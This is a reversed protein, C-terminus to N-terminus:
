IENSHYKAVTSIYITRHNRLWLFKLIALHDSIHSILKQGKVPFIADNQSVNEFFVKTQQASITSYLIYLM